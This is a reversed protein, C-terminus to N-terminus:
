VVLFFFFDYLYLMYMDFIWVTALVSYTYSERTLIVFMYQKVRPHWINPYADPICLFVVFIPPCFSSAQSMSISYKYAQRCSNLHFLIQPWLWVWCFLPHSWNTIDALPMPIPSLLAIHSRFHTLFTQGGRNLCLTQHKTYIDHSCFGTWCM